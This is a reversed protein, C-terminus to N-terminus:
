GVVFVQAQTKLAPLTLEPVKAGNDSTYFRAICIPNGRELLFMLANGSAWSGRAFVENAPDTVDIDYVVEDVVGPTFSATETTKSKSNADAATTPAVADDEDNCYITVASQSASVHSAQTLGLRVSSLVAGQPVNVNPFRVWIRRNNSAFFEKTVEMTVSSNDFPTEDVEWFGDDTSM